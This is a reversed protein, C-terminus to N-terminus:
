GGKAQDRLKRRLITLQELAKSYDYGHVAKRLKRFDEILSGGEALDVIETIATHAEYNDAELLNQLNELGSEFNDIDAPPTQGEIRALPDAMAMLVAAIDALTQNMQLRLYRIDDDSVPKSTSPLRNEINRAAEALRSAGITGALGKLNHVLRLALERDDGAMAEIILDVADAQENAFRQLAWHYLDRNNDWRDLASKTDLHPLSPLEAAAAPNNRGSAARGSLGTRPAIWKALTSYLLAPTIPKDVQDDVGSERARQRDSEMVNATMAIIPLRRGGVERSRIIRTAEYGDMVPMQIDMLVADFDRGALVDVAMRGNDATTVEVGAMELLKVALDRNIPNDEVLLVRAGRLDARSAGAGAADIGQDERPNPRLGFTGMITDFLLSRNIPKILFGDLGVKEAKKMIEERGFSTVMIITPINSLRKNTKIRRSAELGDMEPMSWDMLVLNVPRGSEMERELIDVAERGNSALVVNFTFSELIKKIIERFTANDDAVLVRMGRLDPSPARRVAEDDSVQDFDVVFHFTSGQDPRSEVWIDGGMLDLLQRCIALGLGTGGFRRTTSTDAQTFPRFLTEVQDSTMGIGTDRVTFHLKIGESNTKKRTIGVVIEGNETFKVANNVLNTLVQGLRLPDGVLRMPVDEASHFLLELGKEQAKVAVMDSIGGLVGDLDFPIAEIKLLGAEIKSFDLIDNIIALLSQGASQIKSVFDEQYMTLESGALLHAMGLIANMPTRIEHSMNALFESKARAAKEAEDRAKELELSIRKKETIDRVVAVFRPPAKEHRVFQLLIDVPIRRGDKHQHVTEFSLENIEEAILPAAMQRFSEETHDPKIDIPRLALLEERTYGVQDIAGQNVYTLALTEQDFIFVADHTQDLTIKFQRLAEEAEKRETVDNEVAIFNILEGNEDFLPQIDLEIWYQRGSKDYNVIEEKIGRGETLAAGIRDVIVPDTEPGQLLKGPKKGALDDLTYGSIRTFGENVWEVRGFQDTIVVGNFTKEAALALKRVEAEAHKRDTIDRGEPILYVVQGNDDTIPKLSFDIDRIAGQANQHTTEFRIFEGAAASRVASRIRDRLVESHRWWPEDWIYRGVVRDEPLGAMELVVENAQLLRGDTSLLGMLQFSGDFIGRFKRESERMAKEIRKREIVYGLQNGVEDAMELISADPAEIRPSFFEVMAAVGQSTRVPFGFAGRVNIDGLQRARPFNDDATVDEIWHAAKSAFVRGPLGQGTRFGSEETIEIFHRFLEPDDVHWIRTPTLLRDDDESPMYVHGVPWGTYEAILSLTTQLAEESSGATNAISAVDKLLKAMREKRGIAGVAEELERTRLLVREELEENLARIKAEARNRDTVDVAMTIVARRGDSLGGLPSTSLEWERMKGDSTVVNFVGEEVRHDASYILRTRALIEDKRERYAKRAWDEIKPTDHISYGSLDTWTKSLVLIEGDEAHMMVPFPADQIARRFREESTRLKTEAQKRQTIDISSGIMGIVNGQPDRELALSLHAYFDEGSKRRLRVEANHMGKEMLPLIVGTELFAREDEPYVTSVPQGMM